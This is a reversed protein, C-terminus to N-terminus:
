APHAPKLRSESTVSGGNVAPVMGCRTECRVDWPGAARGTLRRIRWRRGASTPSLCPNARVVRVPPPLSPSGNNSQSRRNKDLRAIRFLKGGRVPSLAVAGRVTRVPQANLILRSDARNLAREGRLVQHDGLDPGPAVQDMGIFRDPVLIPLLRDAL